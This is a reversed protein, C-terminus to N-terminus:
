PGTLTGECDHVEARDIMEQILACLNDRPTSLIQAAYFILKQTIHNGKHRGTWEKEDDQGISFLDYLDSLVLLSTSHSHSNPMMAESGTTSSSSATLETVLPPALLIAADQLLLSFLENTM